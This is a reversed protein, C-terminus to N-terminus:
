LACRRGMGSFLDLYSDAGISIPYFVIWLYVGDMVSLKCLLLRGCLTSHMQSGLQGHCRIAAALASGASVGEEGGAESVSGVGGVRNTELSGRRPLSIAAAFAVALFAPIKGLMVTVWAREKRFAKGGSFMWHISCSGCILM